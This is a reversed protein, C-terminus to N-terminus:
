NDAKFAAIAVPAHLWNPTSIVVAEVSSDELLERWGKDGTYVGPIGYTNAVSWAAEAVIDSVAVMKVGPLVSFESLYRLQVIRGAGVFGVGIAM